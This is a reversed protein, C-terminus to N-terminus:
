KNGGKRMKNKMKDITSAEEDRLERGTLNLFVEDLTPKQMTISKINEKFHNVFEPIFEEGNEYEFTLYGKYEQVEVKYKSEIEERAKEKNEIKTKIIDGGLNSKLKEPSDSAIIEGHDMIAIRDCYEAEDMYHTTLFITINEEKKLNKIFEWIKNRTQPDLGITPEDLFLVKPYHLLGRAIELRRKMGGSFTGVISKKRDQLQVMQLVENIRSKAKQKPVGYFNAHYKLNEYATLNEDLTSEQFVLGISKRVKDPNEVTNYGNVLVQGGSPKLLTCLMQITTSKGAGNPGLFGFLESKKVNFNIDKVALVESFKKRLNSVEIINEM